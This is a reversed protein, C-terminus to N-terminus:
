RGAAQVAVWVLGGAVVVDEPTGGMPIADLVKGSSDLRFLTHSRRSTVWVSHFGLAIASAGTGAHATGQSVGTVPDIRWLQGSAGAGVWVASRDLAIPFVFTGAYFETTVQASSAEVRKARNAFTTAWVSGNGAAIQLAAAQGLDVRNVQRGSKPDIGVLGDLAGVWVRGRTVGVATAAPVVPNGPDGLEITNTATGLKPDVQVIAGFGGTAVWVAGAGVALDIAPAGIGIVKTVHRTAPDIRTVTFDRADGVWVGGEGAAVTVPRSGVSISAVVHNTAPDVAVVAPAVITAAAPTGSRTLVFILAAAAVTAAAVVGVLALRRRSARRDSPRGPAPPDRRASPPVPVPAPAELAPDQALIARELRQLEPGPELGLEGALLRRGDRYTELAESQRGSRYLALMSQGRLRERLPHAAVLADLQGSIEGHRGLRLLSEFRDEMASLRLDDLRRSESRAFDEFAFEVLAPGRWIALAEDLIRAAEEASGDELARRGDGALREFRWADVTEDGTRLVYGPPRTLLVGDHEGTELLRRLHSVYGQVAKAATAPASEGWLADVIRDSSVVEDRHILLLALLSRERGGPVPIVAGERDRVVFPGLISFDV